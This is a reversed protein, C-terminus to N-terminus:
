LPEPFQGWFGCISWHDWTRWVVPPFCVLVTCLYLWPEEQQGEAYHLLNTGNSGGIGQLLEGRSVSRAAIYQFPICFVMQFYTLFQWWVHWTFLHCL